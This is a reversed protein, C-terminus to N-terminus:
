KSRARAHCPACLWGKKAAWGRCGPAACRFKGSARNNRHCENCTWGDRAATGQCGPTECPFQGGNETGAVGARGGGGAGAPEWKKATGHGGAAPPEWQAQTSAARSSLSRCEHSQGAVRPRQARPASLALPHTGGDSPRWVVPKRPGTRALWAAVGSTLFGLLRAEMAEVMLTAQEGGDLRLLAVLGAQAFFPAMHQAPLTAFQDAEVSLAIPATLLAVVSREGRQLHMAAHRANADKLAALFAGAPPGSSGIDPTVIAGGTLADHSAALRGLEAEGLEGLRSCVMPAVLATVEPAASASAARLAAVTEDYRRVEDLGVGGLRLQARRTATTPTLVALAAAADARSLALAVAPPLTHRIAATTAASVAALAEVAAQLVEEGGAPRPRRRGGAPAADAEEDPVETTLAMTSTRAETPPRPPPATASPAPQPRAGDDPRQPPEGTRPPPPKPPAHHAHPPGHIQGAEAGDPPGDAPPEALQGKPHEEPDPPPAEDAIPAIVLPGMAVNPIDHEIQDQQDLAVGEALHGTVPAKCKRCLGKAVCRKNKLFFQQTRVCPIVQEAM